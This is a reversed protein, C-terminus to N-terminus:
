PAFDLENCIGCMKNPAAVDCYTRNFIATQLRDMRCWLVSYYDTSVGADPNDRLKQEFRERDAECGSRCSAEDPFSSGCVRAGTRCYVACVDGCARTLVPGAAECLDARPGPGPANAQAHATRCAVTDQMFDGSAPWALLDCAYLCRAVTRYVKPCNQQMAECYTQCAEGPMTVTPLPPQPAEPDAALCAAGADSEFRDPPPPAQDPVTDEPTGTDADAPSTVIPQARQCSEFTKMKRVTNACPALKLTQGVAETVQLRSEALVDDSSMAQVVLTLGLADTPIGVPYIVLDGETPSRSLDADEMWQGKGQSEARVVRISTANLRAPVQVTVLIFSEECGVTALLGTLLALRTLLNM